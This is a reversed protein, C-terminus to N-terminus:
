NQDAEDWHPEVRWVLQWHARSMEAVCVTELGLIQGHHAFATEAVPMESVGWAEYIAYM